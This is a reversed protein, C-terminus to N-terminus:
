RKSWKPERQEEKAQLVEMGEESKFLTIMMAEGLHLRREYDLFGMDSYLEKFLRVAVPSKDRFFEGLGLAYNIVDKKSVVSNIIGHELVQQATLKTGLLGLSMVEKKTMQSFIGSLGMAPALGDLIEPIAFLASDAAVALDCAEVLSFGGGFANGEVAAIVPKPCHKIATHLNIFASGFDRIELTDKIRFDGLEGGSCFFDEGGALVFSHCSTDNSKEELIRKMTKMCHISLKNNCDPRNIRILCVGGIQETLVEEYDM